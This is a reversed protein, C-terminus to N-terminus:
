EDDEWLSLDEGGSEIHAAIQDFTQRFDDNMVAFVEIETESLGLIERTSRTPISYVDESTAADYGNGRDFWGEDNKNWRQPCFVDIAVGLCCMANTHADRLIEQAQTYKGSRLAAAWIARKEADM